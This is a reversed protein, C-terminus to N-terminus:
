TFNSDITNIGMEQNSCFLYVLQHQPTKKCVKSWCLGSVHNSISQILAVGASHGRSHGMMFSVRSHRYEFSRNLSGRRIIVKQIVRGSHGERFSRNFSRWRFSRMSHGVGKSHGGQIVWGQGQIVGQILFAMKVLNFIKFSKRDVQKLLACIKNPM